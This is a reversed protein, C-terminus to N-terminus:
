LDSDGDLFLLEKKIEQIREHYARFDVRTKEEGPNISWKIAFDIIENLKQHTDEDMPLVLENYSRCNYEIVLINERLQSEELQLELKKVSGKREKERLKVALETAAKKLADNKGKLKSYKIELSKQKKQLLLNQRELEDIEDKVITKEQLEIGSSSSLLKSIANFLFSGGVV